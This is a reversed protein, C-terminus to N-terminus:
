LREPKVIMLNWHQCQWLNVLLGQVPFWLHFPFTDGHHLSFHPCGIIVIEATATFFCRILSKDWQYCDSFVWYRVQIMGIQGYAMAILRHISLFFINLKDYFNSLREQKWFVSGNALVPKGSQGTEVCYNNVNRIIYYHMLQKWGKDAIFIWPLVDCVSAHQCFQKILM